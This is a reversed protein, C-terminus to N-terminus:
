EDPVVEARRGHPAVKIKADAGPPIQVIHPGCSQWVAVCDQHDEFAAGSGIEEPAFPLNAAFFRRFVPSGDYLDAYMPNYFIVYIPRGPDALIAKQFNAVVKRMLARHFPHFFFVVLPGEPLPTEVADGEIVTIPTREPFRQRMIEANRLAIPALSPALEVGVIRRFPFETAVALIRGKGCGLDLFTAQDLNPILNLVRRVISPQSGGYSTTYVDSPKGSSLESYGLNGSTEIGYLDDIPPKLPRASQPGSGGAGLVKGRLWGLTVGPPLVFLVRYANRFLSNFSSM